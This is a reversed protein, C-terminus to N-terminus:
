PGKELEKLISELKDAIEDTQKSGGFWRLEFILEVLRKHVRAVREDIMLAEERM